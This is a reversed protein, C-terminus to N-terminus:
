EVVANGIAFVQVVGEEGTGVLVRLCVEFLCILDFLRAGGNETYLFVDFVFASAGSFQEITAGAGLVLQLLM